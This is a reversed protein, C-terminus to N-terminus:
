KAWKEPVPTLVNVQNQLIISIIDDKIENRLHKPMNEFLHYDGIKNSPLDSEPQYAMAKSQAKRIAKEIAKKEIELMESM